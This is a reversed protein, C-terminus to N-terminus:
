GPPLWVQTDPKFTAWAFWFHESSVIQELESGARPGEIAEGFINWLSGTQTDVFGGEAATFDLVQGDVDRRYMSSSGVDEGLNGFTSTVGEQWFVVVPVDNVVDNVVIVQELASFPYAVNVGDVEAAVVREKPLLRDDEGNVPFWPNSNISDYGAYPNNGYPRRFGTERSLVLGDPHNSKFEEWAIIQSPLFDLQTGTLDGVIAEGTFQQWWSQTQRDYMVLDSNRLNGTTGFDLVTGDALTREFVITANCLPCFTVAVPVGGVIDNAIEHHILIALPYARVDGNVEFLMVPWDDGLWEDAEKVSEFVPNDIAPIGDPPPGGSFIESYDVSHMAFDTETWYDPNFNLRVGGLPDDGTPEVRSGEAGLLDKTQDPVDGGVTSDAAASCAGLLLVLAALILFVKVKSRGFM